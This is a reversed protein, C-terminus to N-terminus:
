IGSVSQYCVLTIGPNSYLTVPAEFAASLDVVHMLRVRSRYREALAQVYLKATGASASFDTAFLINELSVEVPNGLVTM